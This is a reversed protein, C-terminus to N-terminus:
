LENEFNFKIIIFQNDNNLSYFANKGFLLKSASAALKVIQVIVSMPIGPM